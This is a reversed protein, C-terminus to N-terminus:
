ENNQLFHIDLQDDDDLDLSEITDDGELLDGDLEIKVTGSLGKTKRYKEILDGM